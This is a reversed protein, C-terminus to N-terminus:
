LWVELAKRIEAMAKGRHSVPSKEELTAEAFTKKLENAYFIPDYGFGNHGRPERAVLGECIGVATRVEYGRNPDCIAIAAVYRASREREPIERMEELVKEYRDIDRGPVYRASLVGPKGHLADVVFGSDDALTLKGSRFAYTCAKIIANGEFTQATESVEATDGVDSLSIPQLPLGTLYVMLGPIKNTNRTAILLERM